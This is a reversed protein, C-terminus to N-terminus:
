EGFLTPYSDEACEWYLLIDRDQVMEDFCGICFYGGHNGGPIGTVREWLDDPAHWIRLVNKGCRQCTELGPDYITM